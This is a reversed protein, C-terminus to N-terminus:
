ALPMGKRDVYCRVHMRHDGAIRNKSHKQGGAIMLSRTLPM